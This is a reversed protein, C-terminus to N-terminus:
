YKKLLHHIIKHHKNYVDNFKM